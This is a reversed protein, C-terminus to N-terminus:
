TPEGYCPKNLISANVSLIVFRDHSESSSFFDPFLLYNCHSNPKGQVLHRLSGLRFLVKSSKYYM